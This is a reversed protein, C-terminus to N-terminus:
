NAIGYSGIILALLLYYFTLLIDKTLTNRRIKDITGNDQMQRLATNLMVLLEHEYIDVAITNPFVRIPKHTPVMRIKNPNSKNVSFLFKM